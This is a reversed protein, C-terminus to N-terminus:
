SNQSIPACSQDVTCDSCWHAPSPTAPTYLHKILVSPLNNASSCRFVRPIPISGIYNSGISPYRTPRSPIKPTLPPASSFREPLRYYKIKAADPSYVGLRMVRFPIHRHVEPTTSNTPPNTSHFEFDFMFLFYSIWFVFLMACSKSTGQAPPALIYKSSISNLINM